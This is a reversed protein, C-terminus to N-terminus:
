QPTPKTEPETGRKKLQPPADNKDSSSEGPTTSDAEPQRRKLTPKGPEGEDIDGNILAKSNTLRMLHAKVRQFESTSIVYEEQEPFRAVLALSSDRREISQPHSSFLKALSGPKKKNKSALKEFMTSMSTPDYGSAYLYQVGLKDAEEEAGRSFKLMALAGGIGGVNQLVSSIIGGGFIIGALMGYNLASGKGQNEMAHRAAVHAIEHAMVGALESENDAALILGKNVYFFGGPLAFGNVEDSDIVKITFPIKSDSHLVINQGVRNVYETVVPDEVLKAQQEVEISLQRGIAIEKEQSGGLWGFFKDTGGNIKRKGILAPDEKPSLTKGQVPQVQSTAQEKKKDEKKKDKKSSTKEAKTQAAISVPYFSVASLWIASLLVFANFKRVSGKQM